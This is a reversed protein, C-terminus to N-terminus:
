ARELLFWRNFIHQPNKWFSGVCKGDSVFIHAIYIHTYIYIYTQYQYTYLYLYMYLISSHTAMGKELPDEWALSRVWTERMAPPNQVLQAVLSAWPFGLCWGLQLHAWTIKSTVFTRFSSQPPQFGMLNVVFGKCVPLQSIYIISWNLPTQPNKTKTKKFSKQSPNFTSHVGLTPFYITESKLELVPKM